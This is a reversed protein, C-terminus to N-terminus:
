TKLGYTKVGAFKRDSGAMPVSSTLSVFFFRSSLTFSRCFNMCSLKVRVKSFKSHIV